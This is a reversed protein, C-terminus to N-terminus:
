QEQENDISTCLKMNIELNVVFRLFKCSSDSVTDNTHGQKYSRYNDIYLCIAYVKGVTLKPHGPTGHLELHLPQNSSIRNEKRRRRGHKPPVVLDLLAKTGGEPLKINKKVHNPWVKCLVDRLENDAEDMEEAALSFFSRDLISQINM